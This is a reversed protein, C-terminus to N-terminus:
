CQYLAGTSTAAPQRLTEPRSLRHTLILLSLRALARGQTTLLMRVGVRYSRAQERLVNVIVRKLRIFTACELGESALWSRCPISSSVTLTPAASPQSGMGMGMGMGIAQFGVQDEPRVVDVTPALRSAFSRLVARKDLLCANENVNMALSSAGVFLLLDFASALPPPWSASRIERGFWTWQLLSGARSPGSPSANIWCARM